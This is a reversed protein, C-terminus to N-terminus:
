PSRGAGPGELGGSDHDLEMELAATRVTSRKGPTEATRASTRGAGYWAFGAPHPRRSASGGWFCPAVGFLALLVPGRHATARWSAPRRASSRAAAAGSWCCRVVIIAGMLRWRRRLHEIM